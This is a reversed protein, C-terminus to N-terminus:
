RQGLAVLPDIRAARRAPIWCAVLALAALFLAVVALLWVDSAEVSYGFSGAFARMALICLVGVVLSWGILRAGEGVILRCIASKVAGLALRIGIEHRRQAVSYAIVGYVGIVSLSVGVIAFVALVTSNLRPRALSADMHDEVSGPEHFLARQDVDAVAVRMRELMTAASADTRVLLAMDTIAFQTHLIYLEPTEHTSRRHSQVDRAVGIIEREPYDDGDDSLKPHLRRGIASESGFLARALSQSIIAVRPGARTDRADFDRGEVIPIGLTGFYNPTVVCFETLPLGLSNSRVGILETIPRHTRFPVHSVAGVSQVDPLTAIKATLHQFFQGNQVPEPSVLEQRSVTASIVGGAQFGPPTDRLQQVSRLFFAAGSLLVFALVLEVAVLGNRFRRSGAGDNSGRSCDNMLPALPSRASRWAPVAAFVCGFLGALAAAFALVMGDMRVEYARPFDPPLLQVILSAAGLSVLLGLVSAAAGIMLGEILLQRFIRGRGAGLAARIASEKVRTASRALLLNGVNACAVGLLCLAAASLMVLEPRAAGVLFERYPTVSCSNLHRNTPHKAALRAAIEKAGADAQAQTSGPKLRAIVQFLRSDRSASLPPGGGPWEEHQTAFSTWVETPENTVPFRFDPPMVGVIQHDEGDLTITARLVDAAGAFRQQWLEHSIVVTRKGAQDDESVFVRGLSPPVRLLSFVGSSVRAGRVKSVGGTPETVIFRQAYSLGMGNFWQANTKYDEFDPISVTRGASAEGEAHTRLAVLEHADPFPLPRLLVSNAVTFVATNAAIALALTLAATATFSRDKALMRWAFRVDEILRELLGGGSWDRCADKIANVNGFQRRAQQSAEAAPVGARAHEQARMMLHFRLEDDLEQELQDKRFLASVRTGAARLANM